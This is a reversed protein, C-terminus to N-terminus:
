KQVLLYPLRGGTSVRRSHKHVRFVTAFKATRRSNNECNPGLTGSVGIKAAILCAYKERKPRRARYCKENQTSYLRGAQLRTHTCM